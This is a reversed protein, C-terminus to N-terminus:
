SRLAGLPKHPHEFRNHSYALDPAPKCETVIHGVAIHDM